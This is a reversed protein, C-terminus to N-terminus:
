KKAKLVWVFAFQSLLLNLGLWFISFLTPIWNNDYPIWDLWGLLPVHIFAYGYWKKPFLDLGFHLAFLSGVLLSIAVGITKLPRCLWAVCLPILANHTLISRHKILWNLGAIQSFKQDIDPFRYIEGILPLAKLSEEFQCSTLLGLLLLGLVM